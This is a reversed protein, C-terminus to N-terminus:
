MGVILLKLKSLDSMSIKGDGNVDLNKTTEEKNLYEKKFLSLDLMTVKGDQNIDGIVNTNQNNTIVENDVIEGNNILPIQNSITNDIIPEEIDINNSIINNSITNSINNNEGYMEVYEDLDNLLDSLIDNEDEILEQNNSYEQMIYNFHERAEKVQKTEHYFDIGSTITSLLTIILGGVLIPNYDYNVNQGEKLVKEIKIVDIMLLAPVFFKLVLLFLIAPITTYGISSVFTTLEGLILLVIFSIILGLVSNTFYIIAVLKEFKVGNLINGNKYYKLSKILLVFCFIPYILSVLASLKLTTLVTIGAISVVSIVGLIFIFLSIVTVIGLLIAIVLVNRRAHKIRIEFPYQKKWNNLLMLVLALVILVLIVFFIISVINTANEVQNSIESISTTAYDDFGSSFEENSISSNEYMLSAYSVSTFFMVILIIIFIIGVKRYINKM